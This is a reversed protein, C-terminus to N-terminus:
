SLALIACAQPIFNERYFQQNFKEMRGNSDLTYLRADFVDRFDDGDIVFLTNEHTFCCPVHESLESMERGEWQKENENFIATGEDNGGFAYLRNNFSALCLDYWPWPLQPKGVWSDDKLNYVWVKNSTEGHRGMGHRWAQGGAIYMMGNFECAGAYVLPEPLDKGKTWSNSAIHYKHVKPTFKESHFEMTSEKCVYTGGAVIITDGIRVVASGVAAQDPIPELNIWKNTTGDFRMSVPSFCTNEVGFLFLFNGYTVLSVSEFAFVRSLKKTTPQLSLDDLKVHWTDTDLNNVRFMLSCDTSWLRKGSEIVFLSPKGRPKNIPGKYMPQTYINNQYNLTEFLLDMCEDNQQVFPVKRVEGTLIETSINALRVARLIEVAYQERNKEHEIWSQAAHFVDAENEPNLEEHDLYSCLADKSISLFEKNKRLTTFHKIIYENAAARGEEMNFKECLKLFQFCTVNSLKTVMHQECKEAIEDMQLFDAGAMVEGVITNNLKLKKTYIAGLITELATHSIGELIVENDKSEKFDRLFMSNFYPSASALVNKHAPLKRGEVNLQVDCLKEEKWLQALGKTIDVTELTYLM